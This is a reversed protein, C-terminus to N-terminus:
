AHINDETEPLNTPNQSKQPVQESHIQQDMKKATLDFLRKKIDQISKYPTNGPTDGETQATSIDMAALGSETNGHQIPTGTGSGPPYPQRNQTDPQRNPDKPQLCSAIPQTPQAGQPSPAKRHHVPTPEEPSKQQTLTHATEELLPPETRSKCPINTPGVSWLANKYSKTSQMPKNTEKDPNTPEEATRTPDPHQQPPIILSSKPFVKNLYVWTSAKRMPLEVTMHPPIDQSSALRVLLKNRAPIPMEPQTDEEVSFPIHDSSNLSQIIKQQGKQGVKASFEMTYQHYQLKGVWKTTLEVGSTTASPSLPHLPGHFLKEVTDTDSIRLSLVVYIPRGKMEPKTSRILKTHVCVVHDRDIQHQELINRLDNMTRLINDEYNLKTNFGARVLLLQDQDDEIDLDYNPDLRFVAPEFRRKRVTNSAM